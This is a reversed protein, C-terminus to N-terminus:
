CRGGRQLAHRRRLAFFLAAALLPWRAGGNGPPVTQCGGGASAAGHASLLGQGSPGTVVIQGDTGVTSIRVGAPSTVLPDANGLPYARPPASAAVDVSCTYLVAGDPLPDANDFAIVIARLRACDGSLTCSPPQFAFGTANKDIAPNVVCDPTGNARVAIATQRDFTIDNQVASVDLGKTDLTVSFQVRQGATGTASGVQVAVAHAADSTPTPVATPGPTNTATPPVTYTPIPTAGPPTNVVVYGGSAAATLEGGTPDSGSAVITVAYAGPPTNNGIQVNCTYLVAGDPILDLNDFSVVLARVSDCTADPVCGVPEFLFTTGGKNIAPNPACDPKGSPLVAIPTNSDFSLDSQTAAVQRGATRLSVTLTTQQGPLGTVPGIELRIPSPVPTPTSTPARTPTITPTVTATWTATPTRTPRPTYPPESCGSGVCNVAVAFPKSGVAVTATSVEDGLDVASLTGAAFNAVYSVGGNRTTAIGYPSEGVSILNSITNTASDIVEVTGGLTVVYVSAGNPNVAVGSPRGLSPITATLTNSSTDIVAINWSRFNAVYAFRGDPTIAVRNPTRYVDVTTTVTNTHLDIVSVTGPSNTFSNTVYAFAGDPTIAVANPGAGVPITTVLAHTAVSIVSVTNAGRDTVYALTGDPTVAVGVPGSGVDITATVTNTGADIVSVTDSLFNAVYVRAGDPTVAVGDPNSGVAITAVVNQTAADVVSVTDSGLNAIYAYPQAVAPATLLSVGALIAFTGSWESGWRTRRETIM